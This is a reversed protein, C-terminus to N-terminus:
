QMESRQRPDLAAAALDALLNFFLYLAAVGLVLGQVVYFDKRLISEVLLRGLGPRAFVTETVVAGGFLFAAQLAAVNVVPVLAARLAHWLGRWGTIGRARAALLYAQQQADHLSARTVEAIPGSIAFGLVLAPLMLTLLSSTNFQLVRAAAWLVLVGTWAVPLSLSLSTLLSSLAASVADTRMAGTVGVALGLGLGVALGAIALRATPWLREVIMAGVPQGTFLSHGLDGRLLDLIFIIYQDRLPRDLGLAARNAALQEPSILAQAYLTESPDGPTLRLGFFVLTVVAWLVPIFALLRRTLYLHV